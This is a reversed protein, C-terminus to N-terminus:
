DNNVDDFEPLIPANESAVKAAPIAKPRGVSKAVPLEATDKVISFGYKDAPMIDWTQKPFFRVTGDKIAKIKPHKAM